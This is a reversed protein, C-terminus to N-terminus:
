RLLVVSTTRKPYLWYHTAPGRVLKKPPACSIGARLTSSELICTFSPSLNSPPSPMRHSGGTRCRFCLLAVANLDARRWKGRSSKLAMNDIRAEIGTAGNHRAPNHGDQMKSPLYCGIQPKCRPEGWGFRFNSARTWTWMDKRGVLERTM